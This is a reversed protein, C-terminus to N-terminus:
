NRQVRRVAGTPPSSWWRSRRQETAAVSLRRRCYIGDPTVEYGHRVGRRRGQPRRVWMAAIHCM